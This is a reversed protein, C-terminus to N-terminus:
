RWHWNDVCLNQSDTACLYVFPPASSPTVNTSIQLLQCVEIQASRKDDQESLFLIVEGAMGASVTHYVQLCKSSFQQGSTGAQLHSM